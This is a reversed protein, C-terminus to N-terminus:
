HKALFGLSPLGLLFSRIYFGTGGAVVPIKGRSYISSCAGDAKEVFDAASFQSHPSCIDILHHPLEKLLKEDPKATGINMGRYVQMSDASIVEALGKFRSPSGEAFLTRLLATKGTATPAFIM